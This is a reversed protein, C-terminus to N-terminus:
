TPWTISTDMQSRWGAHLRSKTAGSGLGEARRDGLVVVWSIVRRLSPTYVDPSSTEGGERWPLSWSGGERGKPGVEGKGEGWCLLLLM